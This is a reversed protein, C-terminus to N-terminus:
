VIQEGNLTSPFFWVALGLTIQYRHSDHKADVANQMVDAEETRVYQLPTLIMAPVKM